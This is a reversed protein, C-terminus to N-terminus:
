GGYIYVLSGGTLKRIIKNNDKPPFVFCGLSSIKANSFCGWPGNTNKPNVEYHGHIYVHRNLPNVNLRRHPRGGLKEVWTVPLKLGRGYKKVLSSGFSGTARYSGFNPSVSSSTTEMLGLPNLMSSMTNSFWVPRGLGQGWPEGANAHAVLYQRTEGTRLDLVYARKNSCHQSYDVILMWRNKKYNKFKERRLNWSKHFAAALASKPVFRACSNAQACIPDKGFRLRYFHTWVERSSKYKKGYKSASYQSCKLLQVSNKTQYRTLQRYFQSEWEQHKQCRYSKAFRVPKFKKISSIRKKSSKKEVTKLVPLPPKVDESVQKKVPLVIQSGSEAFALPSLMLVSVTTMLTRAKFLRMCELYACYLGM